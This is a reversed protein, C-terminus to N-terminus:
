RSLHDVFPRVFRGQSEGVVRGDLSVTSGRVLTRKIRGDLTMGNYVAASGGSRSVLSELSVVNNLENRDWLILDADSGPRIAGKQPYLGFLQAPIESLVSVARELTLMGKVVSDLLVPVMLEVGPIGRPALDYPVQKERPTFPAHDSAVVDIDGAIVANWLASNDVPSRLPPAVKVFSGHEQIHTENFILYHPCTEGTIAVGAQKAEVVADVAAASAMHAIHVLAGTDKAMSGLMSIAASEVVPPRMVLGNSDTKKEYEEILRQNEAHVACRLGTSAVVELAGRIDDETSAWLGSFEELRDPPPDHTFLKFGVAGAEVMAEAAAASGLAAGSYLAFDVHCESEGLKKRAELVEVTSCPPDSIPMELVTTVGGVSAARTESAFTGREPHSPARCHFHVDVAGPLVQLGTADIVERSSGLSGPSGVESIVEGDIAIDLLDSAGDRVVNGNAIM